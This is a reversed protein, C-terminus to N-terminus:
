KVTDKSQGFLVRRSEADSVAPATNISKALEYARQVAPGRAIEAKWRKLHPFEDINQSQREPSVWPYCAIDAISYDGALFARDALRQGARPLAAGDRPRLPRDRVSDEGVAYLAFHHNQGAMPGLGGM